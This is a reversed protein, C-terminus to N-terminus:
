IYELIYIYLLSYVFCPCSWEHFLPVIVVVLIRSSLFTVNSIHSFKMKNIFLLFEEEAYSYSSAVLFLSVSMTGVHGNKFASVVNNIASICRIWCWYHLSQTCFRLILCVYRICLFFLCTLDSERSLFFYWGETKQSREFTNSRTSQYNFGEHVWNLRFLFLM